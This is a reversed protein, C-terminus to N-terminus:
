LYSASFLLEEDIKLQVINILNLNINQHKNHFCLKYNLM